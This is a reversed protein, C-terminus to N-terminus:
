SAVSAALEDGGPPESTLLRELDLGSIAPSALEHRSAYGTGFDDIAIGIGDAQLQQLDAIMLSTADDLVAEAIELTLAAPDLGTVALVEGIRDRFGGVNIERASRKVTLELTAHGPYTRWTAVQACALRLLREDIASILETREAVAIVRASDLYRGTGDPVRLLAEVGRVRGTVADVTPQYYAELTGESLALLLQRETDDPSFADDRRPANFTADFTAHGDKGRDKAVYMALDANRLVSTPDDGQGAVCIGTSVTVRHCVGDITIPASVAQEIRRAVVDGLDAPDVGSPVGCIVVFEDGGMRGVTDGSRTAASMRAAVETLVVDGTHHGYADNILKFGDLDCFLVAVHGERESRDLARGLRDTLLRRNPLSTLEDHLASHELRADAALADTVDRLVGVIQIVAGSEDRRLPTTRRCFWRVSGDAHRMRHNFEIVVEDPAAQTAVLAADFEVRDVDAVHSAIVDGGGM